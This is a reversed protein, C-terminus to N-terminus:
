YMEADIIITAGTSDSVLYYPQNLVLGGGSSTTGIESIIQSTHWWRITDVPYMVGLIDEILLNGIFELKPEVRMPLPMQIVFFADTDNKGVGNQSLIEQTLAANPNYCYRLCRTYEDHPLPPMYTWAANGVTVQVQSINISYGPPVQYQNYKIRLTLSTASDSAVGALVVRTWETDILQVEQYIFESIGDHMSVEVPHIPTDGKRIYFSLVMRQGALLNYNEIPQSLTCETETDQYILQALEISYTSKDNPVITSKNVRVSGPIDNNFYWRDATYVDTNEFIDGRQWIDFNGNIIINRYYFQPIPPQNYIHSSYGPM